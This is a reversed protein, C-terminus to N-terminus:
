CPWDIQSNPIDRLSCAALWGLMGDKQEPIEVGGFKSEYTVLFSAAQGELTKEM